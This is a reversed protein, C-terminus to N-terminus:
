PRNEGLFHHRDIPWHDHDSHFHSPIQGPAKGRKQSPCRRGRVEMQCPCSERRNGLTLPPSAVLTSFHPNLPLVGGPCCHHPRKAACPPALALLSVRFHSTDGGQLWCAIQYWLPALQAQSRVSGRPAGWCLSHYPLLLHLWSLLLHPSTPSGRHPRGQSSVWLFVPFCASPSGNMDLSSTPSRMAIIHIRPRQM